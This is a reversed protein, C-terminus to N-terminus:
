GRSWINKCPSTGVSLHVLPNLLEMKHSYSCQIALDLYNQRQLKKHGGLNKSVELFSHVAGCPKLFLHFVLRTPIPNQTGRQLPLSPIGLM